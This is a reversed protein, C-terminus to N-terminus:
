GAPTLTSPGWARIEEAVAEAAGGSQRYHLVVNWGARGLALASAKGLGSSSGTVVAWRKRGSATM